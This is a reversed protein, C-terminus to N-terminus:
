DLFVPKKKPIPPLPIFIEIRWMGSTLVGYHHHCPCLLLLSELCAPSLSTKSGEASRGPCTLPPKQAESKVTPLM